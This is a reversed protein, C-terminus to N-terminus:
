LNKKYVQKIKFHSLANCLKLRYLFYLKLHRKILANFLYILLFINNYLWRQRKGNILYKIFHCCKLPKFHFNIFYVRGHFPSLPTEARLPRLPRSRGDRRLYIQDKVFLLFIIKRLNM